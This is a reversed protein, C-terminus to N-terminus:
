RKGTEFRWVRMEKVWGTKKEKTLVVKGKALDSIVVGWFTEAPRNGVMSRVEWRGAFKRLMRQAVRRGVGSRRFKRVVFFEGVFWVPRRETGFNKVLVFGALEGDVRIVYAFHGAKEWYDRLDDVGGYLGNEPVAWGMHEAMDYVYFRVLNRVVEFDQQKATLVQIQM